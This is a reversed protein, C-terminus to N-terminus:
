KKLAKPAYKKALNWAGKGAEHLSPLALVGLGATEAIAKHKESMPKHRLEQVSPGALIGLGGLEAAHAFANAKKEFGNWFEKMDGEIYLTHIRTQPAM